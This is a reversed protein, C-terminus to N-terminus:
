LLPVRNGAAVSSPTSAQSGHEMNINHIRPRMMSSPSAGEVTDDVELVM